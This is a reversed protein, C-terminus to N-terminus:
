LVYSTKSEYQKLDEHGGFSESINELPQIKWIRINNDQSCSAMCIVNRHLLDTFTLDRISNFHGLLSFKYKMM